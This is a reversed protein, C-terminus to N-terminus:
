KMINITFRLIEYLIWPEHIENLKKIIEERHENELEEKVTM